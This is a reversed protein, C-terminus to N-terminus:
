ARIFVPGIKEGMIKGECRRGGEYVILCDLLNSNSIVMVM